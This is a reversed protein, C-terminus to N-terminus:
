DKNVLRYKDFDALPRYGIRQYISNSTPNSLDTFLSTFAFGDDLLKQSLAAVCASAYGRGRKEPPTYVGSVSCGTRTPRTKLCMSGIEGGDEWLYWDGAQIRRNATWELREQDPESGIAEIEFAEWWDMVLRTHETGAQLFRGPVNEPPTVAILKYIRQEMECHYNGRTQDAWTAAFLRSYPTVGHVDPLPWGGSILDAALASIGAEAGEDLPVVLLGYPPTMTGALVPNDGDYVAALYPPKDGFYDPHLQLREIIGIILCNLAEERYLIEGVARLFKEATDYQKVKM